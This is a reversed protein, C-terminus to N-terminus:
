EHCDTILKAIEESLELAMEDDKSKSYELKAAQLKNILSQLDIDLNTTDKHQATAQRKLKSHTWPYTDIIEQVRYIGVREDFENREEESFDISLKTIEISCEEDDNETVIDCTDCCILFTDDCDQLTEIMNLTKKGDDIPLILIIGALVERLPDCEVSQFESIWEQIGSAEVEDIYLDFSVTYYKNEWQIDKIISEDQPISTGFLAELQNNIQSRDHCVVLIKDRTTIEM